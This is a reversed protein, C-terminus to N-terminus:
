FLAQRKYVDEAFYELPIQISVALIADGAPQVLRAYEQRKYVDAIAATRVGQIPIYNLFFM